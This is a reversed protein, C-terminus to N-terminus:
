ASSSVQAINLRWRQQDRECFVLRKRRNKLTGTSLAVIMPVIVLWSL